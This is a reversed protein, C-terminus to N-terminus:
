REDAADSTYLLCFPHRGIIADGPWLDRGDDLPRTAGDGHPERSPDDVVPRRPPAVPVRVGADNADVTSRRDGMLPARQKMLESVRGERIGPKGVEKTLVAVFRQAVGHCGRPYDLHPRLENGGFYRSWRRAM